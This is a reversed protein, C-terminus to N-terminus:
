RCNHVVLLIYYIHPQLSSKLFEGSILYPSALFLQDPTHWREEQQDPREMAM